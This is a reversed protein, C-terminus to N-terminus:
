AFLFGFVKSAIKAQEVETNNAEERAFKVANQLAEVRGLLERKRAISIAGSTDV